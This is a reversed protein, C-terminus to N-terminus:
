VCAPWVSVCLFYPNQLILITGWLEKRGISHRTWSGQSSNNNPNRPFQIIFGNETPSLFSAAGAHLPTPKKGWTWCWKINLLASNFLSPTCSCFCTYIIAVPCPLTVYMVGGGWFRDKFICYSHCPWSLFVRDASPFKRKNIHPVKPVKYWMTEQKDSDKIVM